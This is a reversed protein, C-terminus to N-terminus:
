KAGMKMYVCLLVHLTRDEPKYRRSILVFNSTEFSYIAEMKLNSSYALYSVLLLQAIDAVQRLMAVSTLVDFMVFCFINRQGSSTELEAAEGCIILAIMDILILYAPCTARM